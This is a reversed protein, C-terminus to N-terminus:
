TPTSSSPRPATLIASTSSTSSTSASRPSNRPPTSPAPPLINKLLTYTERIWKQRIPEQPSNSVPLPFNLNIRRDGNAISPKANPGGPLVTFSPSALNGFSSNAPFAGSPNDNAWAYRNTDFSDIAFLRRRRTKGDLPNNFSIPALYNLRSQLSPGDVDQSRYLWELDAPGFPADLQGTTSYLDMEDAENIGPSPFYSNSNVIQSFTPFTPNVTGLEGIGDGTM